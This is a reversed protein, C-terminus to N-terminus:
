EDSILPSSKHISNDKNEEIDSCSNNKDIGVDMGNDSANNILIKDDEKKSRKQNSLRNKTDSLKLNSADIFRFVKKIGPEEGYKQAKSASLHKKCLGCGEVKYQWNGRGNYKDVNYRVDVVQGIKGKDDGAIVLVNDGKMISPRCKKMISPLKARKILKSRSKARKAAVPLLFRKM